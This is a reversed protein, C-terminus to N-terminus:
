LEFFVTEKQGQLHVDFRLHDGDARAILTARRQAPVQSLLTDGDNLVSEDPFYIRTICRDLLGRAFVSVNIHPAQTDDVRGPKITRIRFEGSTTDCRGLGGFGDPQLRPPRGPCDPHDFMGNADAQWTEILADTVPVGAGDYVTGAIVIEGETGPPVVDAGDPWTMGIHLYPGVTQSPTAGFETPYSPDLVYRPETM